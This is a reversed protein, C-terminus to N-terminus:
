AALQNLKNVLYSIDTEPMRNTPDEFFTLMREVTRAIYRERDNAEGNYDSDSTVDLAARFAPFLRDPLNSRLYISEFGLRGQDHILIRANQVPVGALRAVSVEFFTQDGMALARLMLSPSLRGNVHMQEVMQELEDDSSGESLLSVTARERAQLVLNSVQDPPLDTKTTIFAQLKETVAHVLQESLAAPLGPRRALSESVAASEGYGSMVRGLAVENLDAGQNSVLRAVATENGSDILADAVSASVKPRQAIAIQKAASDGRVIEILDEDSLVESSKLLPLAVSEVDRALAMAIDHPVDPSSRLHAALAERVRLEADKVLKRFIDEAIQRESASLARKEFHGAIKGATEARVEPSPDHMLRAVDAQTLKATM